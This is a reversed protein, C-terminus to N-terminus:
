FLKELLYGLSLLVGTLLHTMVTAANAPALKLYDDYFRQSVRLGKWAIPVTLFGLLAWPTIKGLIVGLFISGYTLGLIWAYGKVARARGVRVVWHTKGVARDAECDQFENIYLVAAILLALPFSAWVPEWSLRQTQVYFSGLTMLTGFNLGVLIEGFGTAVIRLPPATYFFGSVVGIAGLLLVVKGVRFTLYIGILSGLAFCLLGEILVEKPTLLGKQIMRSGGTFPRVFQTNAEDNGSVHDYYDNVVNTGAHLLVGGLLTLLFMDLRLLGTRAWAIMTGLIVPLISASFFPARLEELYLKFPKV